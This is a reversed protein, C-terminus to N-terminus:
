PVPARTSESARKIKSSFPLNFFLGSMRLFLPKGTDEIGQLKIIGRSQIQSSAQIKVIVQGHHLSMAFPLDFNLATAVCHSDEFRYSGVLHGQQERGYQTSEDCTSALLTQSEKPDKKVRVKLPYLIFIFNSINCNNAAPCCKALLKAVSHHYSSLLNDLTSLCLSFRSDLLKAITM